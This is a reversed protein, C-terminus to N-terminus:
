PIVKQWWERPGHIMAWWGSVSMARTNWISIPKHISRSNWVCTKSTRSKHRSSKERGWRIQGVSRIRNRTEIIDDESELVLVRNERAQLRFRAIATNYVRSECAFFNLDMLVPSRLARTGHFQPLLIVYTTLVSEDGNQKNLRSEVWRRTHTKCGTWLKYVGSEVKNLIRRRYEEKNWLRRLRDFNTGKRSEYTQIEIINTYGYRPDAAGDFAHQNSENKM